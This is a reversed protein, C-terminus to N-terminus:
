VATSFYLVSVLLVFITDRSCDAIVACSLLIIETPLGVYQQNEHIQENPCFRQVRYAPPLVEISGGPQYCM